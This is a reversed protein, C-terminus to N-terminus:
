RYVTTATMACQVTQGSPWWVAHGVLTCTYSELCLCRCKATPFRSQTGRSWLRRTFAPARVLRRHLVGVWCTWGGPKRCQWGFAHFLGSNSMSQIWGHIPNSQTRHSCDETEKM